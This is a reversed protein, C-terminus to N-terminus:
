VHNSCTKGAVNGKCHMIRARRFSQTHHTGLVVAILLDVCIGAETEVTRGQNSVRDRCQAHLRKGGPVALCRYEGHVIRPMSMGYIGVELARVLGM